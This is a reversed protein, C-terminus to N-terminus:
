SKQPLFSTKIFLFDKKNIGKTLFMTVFYVLIGLIVEAVGIFINMDKVQSNILFLISVMVVSSFIPKLIIKLNPSLNLEKKSLRFLLFLVLYRSIVMSIAAGIMAWTMSIKILLFVLTITLILNLITASVIVKMVLKPKEKALLLSKLNDTLPYEFILLSLILLPLFAELYQYGYILQIVYRGLVMIGFIIPISIFSIYKITNAFLEQLNIKSTRTFIPLSINSFTILGWFGGIILYASSYYGVYSSTVFIGLILLDISDFFTASISSLITQKLFSIVRPKNIKGKNTKTFLFEAVKKLRIRMFIIAICSAVTISFIAVLISNSFLVFLFLCIVIKSFQILSEKITLIDAKGLVYFITEYLNQFSFTIVYITLGLLPLFLEPKKFIYFSLPYALIILLLMLSISLIFKIKSLFVYYSKAKNIDKKGLSYSIYRSITQNTAINILSLSALIVSLALNYVGFKEPLLIRALIISFIMGGVKAFLTTLVSWFSNKVFSSKFNPVEEKKEEM